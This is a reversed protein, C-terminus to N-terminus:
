AKSWVENYLDKISQPIESATFYRSALTELIDKLDNRNRFSGIFMGHPEKIGLLDRRNGVYVYDSMSATQGSHIRWELNRHAYDVFETYNGAIVYIKNV